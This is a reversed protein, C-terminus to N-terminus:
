SFSPPGLNKLPRNILSNLFVKAVYHENRIFIWFVAVKIPPQDRILQPGSPDLWMQSKHDWAVLHWWKQDLRQGSVIGSFGDFYKNMRTKIKDESFLDRINKGDPTVSPCAEIPTVSWGMQLAVDIIEQIDFGARCMPEPLDPYIVESGDHGILSIIDPVTIDMAMAASTVSCSWRNPQM